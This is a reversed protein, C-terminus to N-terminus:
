EDLSEFDQPRVSLRPEGGIETYGLLVADIVAGVAPFPPNSESSDQAVMTVVVVGEAKEGFDVYFGYPEHRTVTGRVRRPTLDSM